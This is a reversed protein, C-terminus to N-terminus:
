GPAGVDPVLGPLFARGLQYLFYLSYVLQAQAYWVLLALSAALMVVPAFKDNKAM